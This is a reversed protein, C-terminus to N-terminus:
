ESFARVEAARGPELPQEAQDAVPSRRELKMKLGHKPRLTVQSQPVVPHGEVLKPAYKQALNALILVTENMALVQGICVRPGGGFPMYAFRHRGASREPTFRDPDFREPDDWLRRHRHLIWPLINVQAGKRIKVGAVEDDALAVRTSVGAAPPYLRMSEEIVQRTYVLSPLDEQGAIRGGLVTDLEAHLRAAVAPHRDLLYWTWSMAQATTEHGAIFITIVQDRVETPTMVGGGHELDTAAVLRGLLDAAAGDPQAAREAIMRDIAADLPRFKEGMLRVRRNMRMPGIIPLIDLINFDGLEFGERMTKAILAIVDDTDTSFMTRAIIQLALGSMEVSIDLEAGDEIPAWRDLYEACSRAIAPGYAAVSRPDFAPAMIRRHRRWVDGDSSLLGSGFLASFFKKEMDTKPYNAVNDVMVRKVGAPDSVVVYRGALSRGELILKHYAELPVGMIPQARQQRRREAASKGLTTPVAGALQPMPERDATIASM